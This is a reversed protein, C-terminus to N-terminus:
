KLRERYSSWAHGRLETKWSLPRGDRADTLGPPLVPPNSPDALAADLQTQTLIPFVRTSSSVGERNVSVRTGMRFKTGSLDAYELEAGTLDVPGFVAASLNTRELHAGPLLSPMATGIFRSKQLVSESWDGGVMQASDFNAGIFGSKHATVGVLSAGTFVASNGRANSLNAHDLVAHALEAKYLNAWQLNSGTLDIIATLHGQHRDAYRARHVKEIQRGEASRYIIADLASQM